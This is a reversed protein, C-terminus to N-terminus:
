GSQGSRNSRCVLSDAVALSIKGRSNKSISIDSDIQSLTASAALPSFDPMEQPGPFGLVQCLRELLLAQLHDDVM